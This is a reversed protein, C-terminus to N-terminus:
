AILALHYVAGSLAVGTRFRGGPARFTTLGNRATASRKLRNLGTLQSANICFGARM